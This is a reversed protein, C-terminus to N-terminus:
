FPNFISEFIIMQREKDLETRTLTTLKGIGMTVMLTKAAYMGVYAMEEMKAVGATQGRFKAHAYEPSRKNRIVKMRRKTNSLRSVFGFGNTVAQRVM